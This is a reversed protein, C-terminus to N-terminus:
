KQKEPNEDKIKAEQEKQDEDFGLDGIDFIDDNLSM